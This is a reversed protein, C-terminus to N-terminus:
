VVEPGSHIGRHQSVDDQLAVAQRRAACRSLVDVLLRAEAADLWIWMLFLDEDDEDAHRRLYRSLADDLAAKLDKEQARAPLRATSDELFTAQIEGELLASLYEALAMALRSKRGALSGGLLQIEPLDLCYLRIHETTGARRSVFEADAARIQDECEAIWAFGVESEGM